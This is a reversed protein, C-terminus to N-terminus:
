MLFVTSSTGNVYASMFIELGCCCLFCAWWWVTLPACWEPTSLTGMGVDLIGWQPLLKICVGAPGSLIHSWGLCMTEWQWVGHCFSFLAGGQEVRRGPLSYAETIHRQNQKIETKNENGRPQMHLGCSVIKFLHQNNIYGM